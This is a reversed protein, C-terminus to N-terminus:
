FGLKLFQHSRLTFTFYSLLWRFFLYFLDRIWRLLLRFNYGAATLLSNMQDGLNGKLYNRGLHHDNKMHGIVAEIVSRRKLERKIQPPLRKQGSKFVKKKLSPDHGGYGKDVYVRSPDVGVEKQLVDIAPKLTHGDFPNGPMARAQLVFQGGASKRATTMISVKCGFEYPKHAKGKGICEVEPAHWSLLKHKDQRTQHYIRKAKILAEKLKLPIDKMTASVKREVDRIVRGLYTNLKKMAKRARKMQKAHRYRGVMIMNTKAVRKYSQRLVVGAEQAITGLQEIAKQHLGWDTPYKIAKEQVTTDVIVKQLDQAKIAKTKLAVTLSEQMIALAAEEGVRKRWHSMSSREMALKHQFFSEGCFYQFYPDYVWRECVGEDSLSFMQKLIHIGIMLRTKVGPRGSEQYYAGFKEELYRWDILRGLIVLEHKMNIIQDLHSRFLEAQHSEESRHPRM